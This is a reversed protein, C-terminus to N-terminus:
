FRQRGIGLRALDDQSLLYTESSKIHAGIFELEEAKAQNVQKHAKIQDAPDGTNSYNAESIEALADALKQAQTEYDVARLRYHKARVACLQALEEGVVVVKLGEIM